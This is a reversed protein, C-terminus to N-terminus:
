PTNKRVSLIILHRDGSESGRTSEGFTAEGKSKALLSERDGNVIGTYSRYNGGKYFQSLIGYKFQYKSVKVVVSSKTNHHGQPKKTTNRPTM